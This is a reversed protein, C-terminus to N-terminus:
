QYKDLEYKNTLLFIPSEVILFTSILTIALAPIMLFFVIYNYWEPIFEYILIFATSAASWSVNMFIICSQRM